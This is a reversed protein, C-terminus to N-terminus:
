RTKAGIREFDAFFDPYSKAVAEDGEIEIDGKADLAAVALAMAIRHDGRSNARGGRLGRGEIRM